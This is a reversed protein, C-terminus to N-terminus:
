VGWYAPYFQLELWQMQSLRNFYFSNAGPFLLPWISGPNVNNMLYIPPGSREMWCYHNFDESCIHLVDGALFGGSPTVTWAWERDTGPIDQITFEPFAAELVVSMEFGHPATSYSDPIHVPSTTPFTGPEYVIPNTARLLPDDCHITLQVEPLREFYSGEFKIISGYLQAITSAGASFELKILGTRTAAIARYLQDRVDSNSEGIISRPNLVVRLVVDRGKLSFNYFRSKTHSSFGYFKPTIDEADLGLISRVIYQNSPDEGSLSFDIPESDDSSVLTM